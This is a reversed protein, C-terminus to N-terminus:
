AHAARIFAIVGFAGFGLALLIGAGLAALMLRLIARWFVAIIILCLLFGLEADILMDANGDRDHSESRGTRFRM